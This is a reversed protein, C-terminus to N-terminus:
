AVSYNDRNPVHVLGPSKRLTFQRTQEFGAFAINVLNYIKPRPIVKAGCLQSVRGRVPLHGLSASRGSEFGLGGGACFSERETSPSLGFSSHGMCDLGPAPASRSSSRGRDRSRSSPHVCVILPVSSLSARSIFIQM